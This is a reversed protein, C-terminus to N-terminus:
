LPRIYTTYIKLLQEHPPNFRRMIHLMYLAKSGKVVIDNVHHQWTLCSSIRVGLLKSADTTPISRGDITIDPLVLPKKATLFHMVECKEINIVM